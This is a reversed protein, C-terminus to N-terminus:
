KSHNTSNTNNTDPLWRHKMVEATIDKLNNFLQKTWVTFASFFQGRDETQKLNLGQKWM